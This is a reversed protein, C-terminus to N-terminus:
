GWPTPWARRIRMKTLKKGLCKERHGVTVRFLFLTLVDLRRNIGRIAEALEEM